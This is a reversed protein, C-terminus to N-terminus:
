SWAIRCQRRHYAASGIPLRQLGCGQCLDHKQEGGSDERRKKALGVVGKKPVCFVEALSGGFPLHVVQSLHGSATFACLLYLEKAEVFEEGVPELRQGM